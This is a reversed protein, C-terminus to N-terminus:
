ILIDEIFLGSDNKEVLNFFFEIFKKKDDNGGIKVKLNVYRESFVVFREEILFFVDFVFWKLVVGVKCVVVGSGGYIIVKLSMIVILNKRFLVSEEVNKIRNYDEVEEKSLLFFWM